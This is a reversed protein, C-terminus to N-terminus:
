AELNAKLDEISSFDQSMNNNKMVDSHQAAWREHVKEKPIEVMQFDIRKEDRLKRLCMKLYTALPIGLYEAVKTADKKLDHDVKLSIVDSM